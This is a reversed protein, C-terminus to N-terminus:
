PAGRRPLPGAATVPWEAVDRSRLSRAARRYLVSLGGALLLVVAVLAFSVVNMANVAGYLGTEWLGFIQVPLLPMDPPVVLAVAGLERFSMVFVIVAASAIATALLPLVISRLTRLTSAGASASAEILQDDIGIVASSMVRLAYPLFVVILTLLLPAVTNYFSTMGPVSLFTLLLAVSFVLPPFAIPLTGVLDALRRFRVRTKLGVLAVVVALVVTLLAVEAAVELSDRISGATGPFTFADRYNDLGMPPLTKSTVTFYPVLSLYLAAGLLEVFTVAVYVVVLGFLVYRWPGMRAAGPAYGRGAITAFRAEVATSRRYWLLLGGILALYAMSEASALGYNPRTSMTDYISSIFTHVNGPLGIIIPTEFSHAVIIATLTLGSLLAPRLLPLTVHALTRLQGAGSARSAEDIGRDMSSLPGLLILYPIPALSLGMTTIVGLLSFVDFIPQDRGLLRMLALNVIGVHASYLGIWSTDRLLGSLLLPAVPLWRLSSRFPVDTRTVVWALVFGTALALVAAGATMELTTVLLEATGPAGLFAAYNRLTVHGAVRIFPASWLSGAVVVLIPALIVVMAAITLAVGVRTASLGTGARLREM